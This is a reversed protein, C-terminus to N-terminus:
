LSTHSGVFIMFGQEIADTHQLAFNDVQRLTIGVVQRIHHRLFHWFLRSAHEHRLHQQVVPRPCLM